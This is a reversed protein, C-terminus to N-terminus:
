FFDAHAPQQWLRRSQNSWGALAELGQNQEEYFARLAARDETTFHKATDCVQRKEAAAGTTPSSRSHSLARQLDLSFPPAGVFEVVRAVVAVPQAYLEESRLVLVRGGGTASRVDFMGGLHM